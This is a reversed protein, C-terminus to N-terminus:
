PARGEDLGGSNADEDLLTSVGVIGRTSQHRRVIAVSSESAPTESFIVVMDSRDGWDFTHWRTTSTYLYDKHNATSQIGTVLTRAEKGTAMGRHWGEVQM